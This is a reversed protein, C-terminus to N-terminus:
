YSFLVPLKAAGLMTRTVGGLFFQMLRSHGYAGMVLLDPRVEALHDCLAGAADGHDLRLDTLKLNRCHRALHTALGAGSAAPEGPAIVCVVEVEQARGLLAVADGIARAARAGGDWALVIKGFVAGRPWDAPVVIAPRGSEFLVGEILGAMLSLSGQAQPLVALDSARAARVVAERADVYREQVIRCDFSAGSLRAAAAIKEQTEKARALREANAQNVLAQAMALVHGAPLDLIPAALACSLHAREADCLAAAYNVATEFSADEDILAGFSVTRIAM